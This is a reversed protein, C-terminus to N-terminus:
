AEKNLHIKVLHRVAIGYYDFFLLDSAYLPVKRGFLYNKMLFQWVNANRMVFDLLNGELTHM